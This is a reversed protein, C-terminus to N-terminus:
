SSTGVRQGHSGESVSLSSVLGESFVFELSRTLADIEINSAGIADGLPRGAQLASLFSFLLPDLSRIHPLDVRARVMGQEAGVSQDV